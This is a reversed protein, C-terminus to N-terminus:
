GSDEVKQINGDNEDMCEAMMRVGLRFGLIFNEQATITDIDHQASVLEALLARDAEGLREILRQECCSIKESARRLESSATIQQECPIINGYYFDKLTKRM